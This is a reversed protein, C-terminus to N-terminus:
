TYPYIYICMYLIYAYLHVYISALIKHAIFMHLSRHIYSIAIWKLESEDIFSVVKEIDTEKLGRTTLAPTGLRIGSPNLASKDGPVTLYSFLKM